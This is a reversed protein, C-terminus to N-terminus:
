QTVEEATVDDIGHGPVLYSWGDEDAAVDGPVRPEDHMSVASYWHQELWLRVRETNVPKRTRLTFCVRTEVAEPVRAPSPAPATATFEADAKGYGAARVIEAITDLTDPSWEPVALAQAIEVLAGDPETRVTHVFECDRCRYEFDPGSEDYHGYGGVGYEVEFAPDDFGYWLLRVDQWATEFYHARWRDSGCEPCVALAPEADDPTRPHRIWEDAIVRVVDDRSTNGAVNVDLHRALGILEAVKRGDSVAAVKTRFKARAEADSFDLGRAHHALLTVWSRAVEPRLTYRDDNTM